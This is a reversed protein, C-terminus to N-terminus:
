GARVMSLAKLSKLAREVGELTRRVDDLDTQWNSVSIRM